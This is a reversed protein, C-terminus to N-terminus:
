KSELELAQKIYYRLAEKNVSDVNRIRINRAWKGKGELLRYKDEFNVGQRFGFTIGKKTPSIWALVLNKMKFMPIGYYMMLKADPAMERMLERLMSVVERYEPLVKKEIFEDVSMFFGFVCAM